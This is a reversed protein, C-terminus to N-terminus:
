PDTSSIVYCIIWQTTVSDAENDECFHNASNHKKNLEKCTTYKMQDFNNRSM